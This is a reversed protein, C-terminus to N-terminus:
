VLVAGINERCGDCIVQRLKRKKLTRGRHKRAVLNIPKLQIPLAIEYVGVLNKKVGLSEFFGDYTTYFSKDCCLKYSYQDVGSIGVIKNVGLRESIGSVASFLMWQPSVDHFNSSVEKAYEHCGRTTQMRTIFCVNEDGLGISKGFVFSFSLQYVQTGNLKLHLSFNGEKNNETPLGMYIKVCCDNECFSFVELGGLFILDIGSKCFKKSVFCYHDILARSKERLSLRKSLYGDILYNLPVFYDRRTKNRWRVRRVALAVNVFIPITVLAILIYKLRLFITKWNWTFLGFSPRFLHWKFFCFCGGDLEKNLM